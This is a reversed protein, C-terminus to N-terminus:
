VLPPSEVDFVPARYARCRIVTIGAPNIPPQSLMIQQEIVESEHDHSFTDHSHDLTVMSLAQPYNLLNSQSDTESMQQPQEAPAILASQLYAGLSLLWTLAVMALVGSAMRLSASFIAQKSAAQMTIHPLKEVEVLSAVLIASANM